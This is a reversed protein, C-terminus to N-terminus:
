KSRNLKRWLDYRDRQRNIRNIREYKLPEGQKMSRAGAEDMRGNRSMFEAYCKDCTPRGCFM